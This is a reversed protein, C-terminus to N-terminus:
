IIELKGKCIGCYYKKFFNKALRKRYYIHNCKTCRIKYKYYEEEFPINSKKLDEVKNGVRSINYGLNQNIIKSYYNFVKGHNNCDPLCHLLEHIITNKIIEDNLNMVWKSIEIHHSNYKRYKIKKGERYKTRVDPNEQKCCGYRKTARKSISIDIDGVVMKDEMDINLKKLEEICEIYLINLKEEM